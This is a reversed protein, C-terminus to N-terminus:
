LKLLDNGINGPHVIPSIRRSLVHLVVLVFDALVVLGHLALYARTMSRTQWNSIQQRYGLIRERMSFKMCYVGVNALSIVVPLNTPIIPSRNPSSAM